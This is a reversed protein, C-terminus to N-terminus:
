PYPSPTRPGRRRSPSTSRRRTSAEQGRAPLLGSKSPITPDSQEGSQPDAESEAVKGVNAITGAAAGGDPLEVSVPDGKSVLTRKDADLDVTVIRKTSTTELVEVGPQLSAGLTALQQGIRRQGRLFAIQGLEVAGTEALGVDEQWRKVAATTASRWADDIGINRDPDYGLEVLNRELQRIDPGDDSSADLPRWMPVSGYMLTVPKGDLWYLAQGREVVTGPKRLATVTGPAQAYSTVADAYALTGSVTEHQVLDRREVTATATPVASETSASGSEAGGVALTAGAAAAALAAAALPLLLRRNM